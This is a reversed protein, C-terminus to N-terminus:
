GSVHVMQALETSVPLGEREMRVRYQTFLSRAERHQGSAVLMGLLARYADERWPDLTLIHRYAEQAEQTLHMREAIGAVRFLAGVARERLYSRELEVWDAYLEDALFDGKYLALAQRYAEMAALGDLSDGQQLLQEFREVDLFYSIQPAFRYGSGERLIVRPSAPDPELAQRLGHLLVHFRPITLAPDEGPWLRDCLEERSLTRGRYALLLGFLTLARRRGFANTSLLEGARRVQLTGLTRIELWPVERKVQDSHPWLVEAGLRELWLIPAVAQSPPRPQRTFYFQQVGIVQGGSWLPLCYRPQVDQSFPCPELGMRGGQATGIWVPCRGVQACRPPECRGQVLNRGDRLVLRVCSAGSLETAQALFAEIGETEAGQRLAATIALLGKEGLRTLVAYLSSALVPSILALQELLVADDVEPDQSALDLVGILGQPREGPLRPLELPYCVYTKYGLRKVKQRLYRGDSALDHTVLPQHGLAVLGPYGEGWAFWPREMFAERHMGDYATLALHREQPDALFLEAAEMKLSKRLGALFVQLTQFLRGPEDTLTRVARSLSALVEGADTQREPKLGVGIERGAYGQCILRKGGYSLATSAQYAGRRIERQVPCRGCLPRGFGDTGAVVEACRKGLVAEAPLRFFVAAEPSWAVIRGEKDLQWRVQNM